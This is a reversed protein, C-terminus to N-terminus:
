DSKLGFSELVSFYYCEKVHIVIFFDTSHEITQNNLQHFSSKNIIELSISKKANLATVTPLNLKQTIVSLSSSRDSKIDVMDFDVYRYHWIPLVKQWYPM